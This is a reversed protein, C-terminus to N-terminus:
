NLMPPKIIPPLESSIFVVPLHQPTTFSTIPLIFDPVTHYSASANAVACLSCTSCQHHPKNTNNSQHAMDMHCNTPMNISIASPTPQNKLEMQMSMSWASGM